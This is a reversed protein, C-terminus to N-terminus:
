RHSHTGPENELSRQPEQRPPPPGAPGGQGGERPTQGGLSSQAGCLILLGLVFFAPIFRPM